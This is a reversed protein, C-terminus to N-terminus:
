LTDDLIMFECRVDHMEGIGERGERLWIHVTRGCLPARGTRGLRRMGGMMERGDVEGM